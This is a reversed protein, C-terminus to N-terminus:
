RTSSPGQSRIARADLWPRRQPHVNASHYALSMRYSRAKPLQLVAMANKCTITYEGTWPQPDTPLSVWRINSIMPTADCGCNIGANALIQGATPLDCIVFGISTIVCPKGINVRGTGTVPGCESQCTITYEWHGGVIHIDSYRLLIMAVAYSM